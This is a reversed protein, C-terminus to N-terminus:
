AIPQLMASSKPQRSFLAACGAAVLPVALLVAGITTWPVVVPFGGERFSQVVAVPAMGAPVAIIAAICALMGASAGVVKRRTAKGAGVAVLIARDRRAEAAVLAVSVAVIGLAILGAGGTAAARIPGFDNVFDEASTVYAGSHRGAIERAGSVNDNTIPADARVLFRGSDVPALGLRGAAQESIVFRPMDELLFRSDGAEVAPVEITGDAPDGSVALLRVADGEVVGPGIGVIKGAELAAVGDEAHLAWLLDAGGVFLAHTQVYATEGLDPAGEIYATRLVEDGGEPSSTAAYWAETRRALIWRPFADRLDAILASDDVTEGGDAPATRGQDFWALPTTSILLQDDAIWQRRRQYEEESLSLASVAVPLILAITAAATAAGTRRGHRATDRAAIRAATPLRSAVHGVWTVLLPISILSGGLMSVLGAVLLGSEGSIAAYALAVAGLAVAILGKGALRGPPRPRPTRAALADTTSIRAALRAPAIAAITAAATGLALAGAVAPWSISVEGPLADILEGVHPIVLYAAAIGCVVGVVSGVFGLTVGGFLVVARVHGPDGGAAGLLGLARLQRRLGVVFAAAVILGTGFLALAAGAFAFSIVRSEDDTYALLLALEARTQVDYINPIRKLDVEVQKPDAGAPLDINCCMFADTRGVSAFTGPGLIIEEVYQTPRTATGTIVIALDDFSLRDGIHVKFARLVLPSVAAEGPARPVRGDLLVHVGTMPHQDFPIEPELFSLNLYTGNRIMTKSRQRVGVARSGEPLVARIRAFLERGGVSQEDYGAGVYLDSSGIQATVQEETTPIASRIVTSGGTLAAIPFAVM